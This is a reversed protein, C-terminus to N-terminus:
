ENTDGWSIIREQRLSKHVDIIRQNSSGRFPLTLDRLEEIYEGDVIIDCNQIIYYWYYDEEANIKLGNIGTFDSDHLTYGTYLWITKGLIYKDRIKNVLNYVGSLNEDTLPEGGLITVREIYPRDILDMFQNQVEDTWEKGGKFDWTEPNFCNKCHRNCGQVFLAVGIGNGNSVDLNRISAYRMYNSRRTM